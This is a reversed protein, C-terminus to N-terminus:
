DYGFASDSASQCLDKFMDEPMYQFSLIANVIAMTDKPYKSKVWIRGNLGVAIEFTFHKTLESLFTCEKNLILQCTSLLCDFVYGGDPLKGMRRQKGVADVCVVEAEYMPGSSLIRAYVLDGVDLDPRNKKTVGEFALYDLSVQEYSNIEIRFNDTSKNMVVGIVNDGRVPEYRNGFGSMYYINPSRYTLKAAVESQCHTSLCGIGPGVVVKNIKSVDHLIPLKDGPLLVRGSKSENM